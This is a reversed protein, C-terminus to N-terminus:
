DYTDYAVQIKHFNERANNELKERVKEVVDPALDMAKMQEIPGSSRSQSIENTIEELKKNELLKKAALFEKREPSIPYFM